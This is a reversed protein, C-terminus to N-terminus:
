VCEDCYVEYPCVYGQYYEWTKQNVKEKNLICNRDQFILVDELQSPTNNFCKIDNIHPKKLKM